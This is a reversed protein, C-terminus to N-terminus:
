TVIDTDVANTSSDTANNHLIDLGGSEEVAMDIMRIVNSEDSVDVVVAIASPLKSAVRAAAAGNIDAVVVSAGQHSMFRATAEGVGSGSGTVIAVKGDLRGM